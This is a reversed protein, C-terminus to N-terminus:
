RISAGIHEIVKRRQEEHTACLVQRRELGILQLRERRREDPQVGDPEVDGQHEEAKM